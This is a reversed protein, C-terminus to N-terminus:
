PAPPAWGSTLQMKGNLRTCPHRLIQRRAMRINSEQSCVDFSDSFHSSLDDDRLGRNWEELHRNWATGSDNATLECRMFSRIVVQRRKNCSIGTQVFVTACSTSDLITELYNSLPRRLHM